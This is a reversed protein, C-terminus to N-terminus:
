EFVSLIKNIDAVTWLKSDNYYQGGYNEIFQKLNLLDNHRFTKCGVNVTNPTLKKVKYGNVIFEKEKEVEAALELAENWQEPLNYLSKPSCNHSHHDYMGKDDSNVSIYKIHQNFKHVANWEVDTKYGLADLEKEFAELLSIPGTVVFRNKFKKMKNNKEEILEVIGDNIMTGLSWGYGGASIAIDDDEEQIADITCEFPFIVSNLPYNKNLLSSWSSPRKTIRIKDGVKFKHKM